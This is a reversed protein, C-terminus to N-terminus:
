YGRRERAIRRMREAFRIAAAVAQYHETSIEDGIDLAKHLARATPPDPHIPVGAEIAAARIRAAVEDVGKAVCVPARKAARDWKLAVAYHTPNVVVVDAKGVEAIMQKSAIEMGRQRRQAKMHPDGESRKMDDMLEKRNMRNRRLFEMRQWLYDAAGIVLATVVLLALFEVLMRLMEAIAPRVEMAQTSLVRQVHGSLFLGLIVAIIVLKVFSKFFEFLGSRGFKQGANKIPDIRSLQPALKEPAFVLSRQVAIVILVFIAPVLFWPLVSLGVWLLTAGYVPGAGRISQQDFSNAQDWFIMLHEGLSLLSWGGGAVAVVLLAAYGAAVNLDASRVVDGKRRAEELKQPTPDFSREAAEEESM